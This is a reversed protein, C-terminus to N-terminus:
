KGVGTEGLLLVTIPNDAASRVLSFAAQFGQSVGILDDGTRKDDLSARLQSVEEQLDLLQGAINEPEFYRIYDPDDWEEAPKGVITCSADGRARCATERFVVFRGMFQTVYGSAYGIMSWCAPDDGIGFDQIQVEDEWSNEWVFEGRFTRRRLDLESRVTHVKVLGELQHLKPGILFMDELAGDGVLHKALEADQQGSVFGMRVLLGRAREQGLTNFLERRLAGLARAHLLLMRADGLQILGQEPDIRLRERLALREILDDDSVPM